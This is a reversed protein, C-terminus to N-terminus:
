PVAHRLLPIRRLVFVLALSLGLIALASLPVGLLPNVTLPSFRFGLMGNRLMERFLIHVLYVGYSANSLAAVRAAHPRLWAYSFSRLLAFALASAACVNFLSYDLFMLPYPKGAVNLGWCALVTAAVLLGFAALLSGRRRELFESRDYLYRGLVYYGVYTCFLLNNLFFTYDLVFVLMVNPPGLFFCLLVFWVYYRDPANGFMTNLFPASLYIGIMLYLFWLHKAVKAYVLERFFQGFDATSFTNPDHMCLYYVVSWIFLPVIIKSLRRRYFTTLSPYVQGPKLLLAGSAMVFLPVGCISLAAYTFGIWWSVQDKSTGDLILDCSHLVVVCVMAVVKIVDVALLRQNSQGAQLNTRTPSLSM